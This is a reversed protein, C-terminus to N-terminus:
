VLAAVPPGRRSLRSAGAAIHRQSHRCERDLDIARPTAAEATPKLLTEIITAISDRQAILWWALAYVITAIAATCLVVIALGLLLSGGFADALSRVPMDGFRGDLYEMAPVVALATAISALVCRLGERWGATTVPLRFRNRAAIECCIRLGRGALLLAILFAFASVVLRSGHQLDDYSDHALAYDGIVDIMLHAIAAGAAAACLALPVLTRTGLRM